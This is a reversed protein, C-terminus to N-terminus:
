WAQDGGSQWVLSPLSNLFGRPTYLVEVEGRCSYWCATCTNAAHAEHLRELVERMSDTRLNGCPESKNFEVCKSVVMQNDINFMAKGAICGSVGDNVAADFKELYSRNTHFTEPYRDKLDLLVETAGRLHRRGEDGTKMVSYPQVQWYVGIDRALRCLKPMEELNDDTLVSIIQVRQNTRDTRTQLLQDIANIAREYAFKVGRHRAHKESDAYDISVSCGWLGAEWMQRARKLTMGSGSTTLYPFHDRALIDVIQHIDRRLMPEGGALSVILSGLESLKRAGLVFDALSNEEHPKFDNQWYTCFSCGYNCNYTVQWTVWVPRGTAYAKVLRLKKSWRRRSEDALYEDVAVPPGIPLEIVNGPASGDNGESRDEGSQPGLRDIQKPLLSDLPIPRIM